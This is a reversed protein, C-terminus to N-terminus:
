LKLIDGLANNMFVNNKGPDDFGYDITNPAIIIGYGESDSITSNILRNPADDRGNFASVINAKETANPLLFGGGNKIITHEIQFESAMYIGGWSGPTGAEGDLIVPKEATGLFKVAINNQNRHLYRDEKFKMVVGAELTFAAHGPIEADILYYNDGGMPYWPLGPASEGEGDEVLVAAVYSDLEFTNGHNATLFTTEVNIPITRVAPLVTNRFEVDKIRFFKLKSAAHYLGYGACDIIKSDTLSGDNHVYLAAPEKAEFSGMKIIGSGANKITTYGVSAITREKAAIGKWNASNLGDIIIEENERGNASFYVESFIGAGEKMYVEVNKDIFINSGAWFDGDIYYKGGEHFSFSKSIEDMNDSGSPILTIYDYSDPFHNPDSSSWFEMFTIPAKIPITYSLQNNTVLGSGTVSGTVLIDYSFSNIFENNSLDLLTPQIGSLTVAAAENQGAFASKGANEIIADSLEITGDVILIGKWGADGIFESDLGQNQSADLNTLTGGANVSIGTEQEFFIVVDEEIISLTIGDPVVLDETVIYDPMSANPQINTLALDETLTGGIEVAGETFIVVEDEDSEGGSSVKLTFTYLDSRPPIFTPQASTSDEFNIESQPVDGSYTWLYTFGDPGQSKTGDLTVLDLPNVQQGPGADAVLVIPETSSDSCSFLCSLGLLYILFLLKKV